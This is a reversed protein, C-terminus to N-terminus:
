WKSPADLWERRLRVLDDTHHVFFLERARVARRFYSSEGVNHRLFADRAAWLAAFLGWDRPATISPPARRLDHMAELAFLKDVQDDLTLPQSLFGDIHMAMRPWPPLSSDTRPPGFPWESCYVPHNVYFLMEQVGHAAPLSELAEFLALTTARHDLHADLAPHPAVVTTPRFKDIAHAIDAVLSAWTPEAGERLWGTDFARRQRDLSTEGTMRGRMREGRKQHMEDLTEDFYGLNAVRDPALGAWLPVSLSDWVRLRRKLDFQPKSAAYFRRYNEGGADGGTVTIVASDCRKYLGFAAIEADDPHPSFVLARRKDRVPDEFVHLEAETGFRIGRSQVTWEVEGAEGDALLGSVDFWRQGDTSPDVHHRAVAGRANRLEFWPSSRAARVRVALLASAAGAPLSEITWALPGM